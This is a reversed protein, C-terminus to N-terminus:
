QGSKEVCEWAEGGQTKKDKGVDTECLEVQLLQFQQVIQIDELQVHATNSVSLDSVGSLKSRQVDGLKSELMLAAGIGTEVV